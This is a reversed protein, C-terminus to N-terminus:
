NRNAHMLQVFHNLQSTDMCEYTTGWDFEGRRHSEWTKKGGSRLVIDVPKMTRNEHVSCFVDVM